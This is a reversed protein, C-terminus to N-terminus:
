GGGSFYGDCRKLFEDLKMVERSSGSLADLQERNRGNSIPDVWVLVADLGLLERRVRTTADEDAYRVPVAEIRREALARALPAFLPNLSTLDGDRDARWLIGVRLLRRTANM